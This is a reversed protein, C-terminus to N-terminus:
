NPFPIKRLFYLCYTKAYGDRSLILPIPIQRKSKRRNEGYRSAMAKPDRAQVQRM